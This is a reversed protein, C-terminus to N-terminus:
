DVEDINFSTYVQIKKWSPLGEQINQWFLRFTMCRFHQFIAPSLLLVKNHIVTWVGGQGDKHQEVEAMRVEAVSM